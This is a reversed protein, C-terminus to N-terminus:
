YNLQLGISYTRPRAYTGSDIGDVVEPDAGSYNTITFANQATLSLVTKIKTGLKIERALRIYDMKFYSANEIFMDSELRAFQSVYYQYTQSNGSIANNIQNSTLNYNNSAKIYNYVYNGISIRGGFSFEWRRYKLSSSVGIAAKPHPTNAAYKDQSDVKGDNNRDVFVGEIPKGNADYVQQYMYFSGLAEKERYIQTYTSSGIQGQVINNSYVKIIRNQNFSTNTYVTWKIDKINILQSNLTIEVGKNTITGDSSSGLVYLNLLAGQVAPTAHNQGKRIYYDVSGYLFQNFLSFELGTNFLANKERISTSYFPTDQNLGTSGYGIRYRLDTVKKSNKIFSENKLNWFLNTAVSHSTSGVYYWSKNIAFTTKIIYRNKFNYNLQTFYNEDATFLTGSFESYHSTPLSGFGLLISNNAFAYNQISTRNYYTGRIHSIGILWELQSGNKGLPQTYNLYSDFHNNQRRALTLDDAKYYNFNPDYIFPSQQNYKTFLVRDSKSNSYNVVLRASKWFHLRYDLNFNLLFAKTNQSNTQRSLLTVPNRQTLDVAETPDHNIYSSNISSASSINYYHAQLKLYDNFFSPTLSLNLTNRKYDTTKLIGNSNTAGFSARIPLKLPSSAIEIHHDQNYVTSYIEDQWDTNNNGLSNIIQPSGAYRENILSRFEDASLLNTKNAIQAQAGTGSYTVTTKKTGKKTSIILVGNSAFEGYLSTDIADKLFTINEIDNPNIKFDVYTLIANDVIIMIDKNVISTTQGRNTITYDTNPSGSNAIVSLGPIRGQILEEFSVIYGKNFQTTDISIVSSDSENTDLYLRTKITPITDQANTNQLSFLAFVILGALWFRKNNQSM